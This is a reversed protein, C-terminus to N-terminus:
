RDFKTESGLYTWAVNFAMVKLKADNEVEEKQSGAIVVSKNKGGVSM